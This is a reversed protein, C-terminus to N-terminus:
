ELGLEQLKKHLQISYDDRKKIQYLELAEEGTMDYDTLLAKVIKGGLQELETECDYEKAYKKNLDYRGYACVLSDLAMDKAGYNDFVLYSQYKKSVAAMTALRQYLEEDKEKIELKPASYDKELILLVEKCTMGTVDYGNIKTNEFFLGSNAQEYLYYGLAGLGIVVLCLLVIIAIKLGKKKKM